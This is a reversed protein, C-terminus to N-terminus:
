KHFRAASISEPIVRIVQVVTEVASIDSSFKELEMGFGGRKLTATRWNLGMLLCLTPDQGLVDPPIHGTQLLLLWTKLPSHSWRPSCSLHLAVPPQMRGTYLLHFSPSPWSYWSVKFRTLLVPCSINFPSFPLQYHNGINESNSWRINSENQQWPALKNFATFLRHSLDARKQTSSTSQSCFSRTQDTTQRELRQDTLFFACMWRSLLTRSTCIISHFQPPSCVLPPSIFCSASICCHQAEHQTSESSCDAGLWDVVYM